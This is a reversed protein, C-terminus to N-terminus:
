AAQEESLTENLLSVIDNAGMRKALSIATLYGTM